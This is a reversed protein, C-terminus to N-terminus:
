GKREAEARQLRDNIARGLGHDPVPEALIYDVPAQDLRRLAAFLQQAAQSLDGTPSLIELHAPPEPLPNRQFALIGLRAEPYRQALAAIQGLILPRDPAYHSKLMGSAQPTGQQAMPAVPGVVEEIAELALGGQRYLQLSGDAEVGLITSEIGVQAAGGDLIYGVQAGLQDAVHQATTPSIYGFPNASPAALPFDLEELLALTFPHDPIRIAVRPHNATVLDPIQATRPLLLTLPGPWFAEALRHALPPLKQLASAVKSLANTHVILPNFQPRNKAEFIKIVAEPAYANAALGYVTETPIAVLEGQRLVEAAHILDTGIAM